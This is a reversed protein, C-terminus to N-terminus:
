PSSNEPQGQGLVFHLHVDAPSVRPARTGVVFVKPDALAEGKTVWLRLVPPLSQASDLSDLTLPIQRTESTLLASAGHAKVAFRGLDLAAAPRDGGDYGLLTVSAGDRLDGNDAVEFLARQVRVVAQGGVHGIVTAPLAFM